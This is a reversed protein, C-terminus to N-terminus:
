KREDQYSLIQKYREYTEEKFGFFNTVSIKNDRNFIKIALYFLMLPAILLLLIKVCFNQFGYIIREKTTLKNKDVKEGLRRYIEELQVKSVCNCAM